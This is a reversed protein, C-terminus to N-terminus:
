SAAGPGPTHPADPAGPSDSDSAAAGASEELDRHLWARALRWSREVTSPSTDMAAATEATTLGAFYRLLVVEAARPHEAELRTLAADVHLLEGAPADAPLDPEIALAENAHELAVRQRDGGRKLAGRRRASEVLIDRMARAAAHFFHGRGDWGEPRRDAIRMWAEHVLATPQLTQGPAAHAMRARALRRLEDYVLPLLDSAAREDGENMALLVRTIAAGHGSPPDGGPKSGSGAGSSSDAGHGSGHGSGPDGHGSGQASGPDGDIPSPINEAM